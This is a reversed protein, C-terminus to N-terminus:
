RANSLVATFHGLMKEELDLVEQCCKEKAIPCCTHFQCGIAQIIANPVVGELINRKHLGM